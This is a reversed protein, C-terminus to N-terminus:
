KGKRKIAKRDNMHFTTRVASVIRTADQGCGEHECQLSEPRESLSAFRETIHGAPCQYEYIGM